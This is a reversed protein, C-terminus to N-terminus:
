KDRGWRETQGHPSAQGSDDFSTPSLKGAGGLRKTSQVAGVRPSLQRWFLLNLTLATVRFLFAAVVIGIAHLLGWREGFYIVASVLGVAILGYGVIKVTSIRKQHHRYPKPKRYTFAIRTAIGGFPGAIGNALLRTAFHMMRWKSYIVNDAILLKWASRVPSGDPSVVTAVDGGDEDDVDEIGGKAGIGFCGMLAVLAFGLFTLGERILLAWIASHIADLGNEAFYIISGLAAFSAVFSVYARHGGTRHMAATAIFTERAWFGACIAMMPIVAAVVKNFPAVIMALGFLAALRVTILTLEAAASKAFAMGSKAPDKLSSLRVRVFTIDKVGLLFTWSAVVYLLAKTGFYHFCVAWFSAKALITLIRVSHRFASRAKMRKLPGFLTKPNGIIGPGAIM